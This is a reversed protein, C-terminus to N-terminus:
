EPPTSRFKDSRFGSDFGSLKNLTSTTSRVASRYLNEDSYKSLDEDELMPNLNRMMEEIQIRDETDFKFPQAQPIAGTTPAKGGLTGITMGEADKAEPPSLRRLTDMYSNMLGVQATQQATERKLLETRQARAGKQEAEEKKSAGVAEAAIIYDNAMPINKGELVKKLTESQGTQILPNILANVRDRDAKRAEITGEAATFVNSVTKSNSVIGVNQFKYEAIKATRAADDLSPDAMIGTIQKTIEPIATLADRELKAADAAQKLKFQQERFNLESAQADILSNVSKIQSDLSAEMKSAYQSTLMSKENESLGRAAAVDAFYNRQLPAIDSSYSFADM